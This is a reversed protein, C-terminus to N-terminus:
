TVWGDMAEERALQLRPPFSPLFRCVSLCFRRLISSVYKFTKGPKVKSFDPTFHLRFRGPAMGAIEKDFIDQLTNADGESCGSAIRTVPGEQGSHLLHYFFVYSQWDQFTSCGTSFVTHYVDKTTTQTTDDAEKNRPMREPVGVNSLEHITAEANPKMIQVPPKLPNANESIFTTAKSTPSPQPQVPLELLGSPEDDDITFPILIIALSIVGTAFLLVRLLSKDTHVGVRTKRLSAKTIAPM